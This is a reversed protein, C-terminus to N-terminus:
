VSMTALRLSSKVTRHHYISQFLAPYHADLIYDIMDSYDTYEYVDFYKPEPYTSHTTFTCHRYDGCVDFTTHQVMDAKM